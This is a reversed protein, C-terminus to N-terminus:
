AVHALLKCPKTLNIILKFSYINSAIVAIAKKRVNAPTVHNTSTAKECYLNEGLVPVALQGQKQKYIYLLRLDCTALCAVM